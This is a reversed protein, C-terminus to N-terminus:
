DPRITTFTLETATTHYLPLALNRATHPDATKQKTSVQYVKSRKAHTCHLVFFVCLMIAVAAIVSALMQYFGEDSGKSDRFLGTFLATPWKSPDHM